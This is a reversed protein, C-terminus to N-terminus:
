SVSARRIRCNEAGDHSEKPEIFAVVEVCSGRGPDLKRLVVVDIDVNDVECVPWGTTRNATRSLM